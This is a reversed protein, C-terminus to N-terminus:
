AGGCPGLVGTVWEDMRSGSDRASTIDSAPLCGTDNLHALYDVDAWGGRFLVLSLEAEAPRHHGSRGLRPRRFM